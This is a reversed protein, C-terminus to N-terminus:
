TWSRKTDPHNKLWRIIKVIRQTLRQIAKQFRTLGGCEQRKFDKERSVLTKSQTRPAPGHSPKASNTKSSM